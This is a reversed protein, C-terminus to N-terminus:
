NEDETNVDNENFYFDFCLEMYTDSFKHSVYNLKFRPCIKDLIKIINLINYGEFTMNAPTIAKYSKFKDTSLWCRNTWRLAIIFDNLLLNINKEIQEQTFGTELTMNIWFKNIYENIHRLASKLIEERMYRGGQIELLM